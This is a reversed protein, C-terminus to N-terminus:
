LLQWCGRFRCPIEQNLPVIRSPKREDATALVLRIGKIDHKVDNFGGFLGRM